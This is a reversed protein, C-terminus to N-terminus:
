SVPADTKEEPLVAELVRVAARETALVRANRSQRVTAESRSLDDINTRLLAVASRVAAIELPTM